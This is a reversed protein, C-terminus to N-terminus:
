KKPAIEDFKMVRRASEIKTIDINLTEKKNIELEIINNQIKQLKGEVVNKKNDDNTYKVKLTKNLAWMYDAENRLLRDLGPSSVELNYAVPILSEDKDLVDSVIRSVDACDDLSITKTTNDTFLRLIWNTGEKKYELEYIEYGKENLYPEILSRIKETIENM